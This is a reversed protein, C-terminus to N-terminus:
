RPARGRQLLEQMAGQSVDAHVPVTIAYTNGDKSVKVGIGTAKRDAVFSLHAQGGRPHFCYDNQLPALCYSLQTFAKKIEEPNTLELTVSCDLKGKFSDIMDAVLPSKGDNGSNSDLGKVDGLKLNTAIICLTSALNSLTILTDKNEPALAYDWAAPSLKYTMLKETVQAELPYRILALAQALEAKRDQAWAPVTLLLLLLLNRMDRPNETPAPLGQPAESPPRGDRRLPDRWILKASHNGTNLWVPSM